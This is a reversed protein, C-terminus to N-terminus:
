ERESRRDPRDANQAAKLAPKQTQQPGFAVFRAGSAQKEDAM